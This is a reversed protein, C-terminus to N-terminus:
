VDLNQNDRLQAQADKTFKLKLRRILGCGSRHTSVSQVSGSDSHMDAGITPTHSRPAEMARSSFDERM